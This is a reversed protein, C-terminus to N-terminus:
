KLWGSCGYGQPYPHLSLRHRAEPPSTKADVADVGIRDPVFGAQLEQMLVCGRKRSGNLCTKAVPNPQEPQSRQCSHWRAFHIGRSRRSRYPCQNGTHQSRPVGTRKAQVRLSRLPKGLSHFSASTSTLASLLLPIACSGPHFFAPSPQPQPHSSVQVSCRFGQPSLHISISFSGKPIGHFFFEGAPM